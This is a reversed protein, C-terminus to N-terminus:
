SILLSSRFLVFFSGNKLSCITLIVILMLQVVSIDMLFLCLSISQLAIKVGSMTVARKRPLLANGSPFCSSGQLQESM